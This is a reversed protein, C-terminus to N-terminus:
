ALIGSHTTMEEELPDERGLNYLWQFNGAKASRDFTFWTSRYIDARKELKVKFEEELSDIMGNQDPGCDGKKSKLYTEM